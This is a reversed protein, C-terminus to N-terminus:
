GRVGRVSPTGTTRAWRSREGRRLLFDIMFDHDNEEACDSFRPVRIRREGSIYVRFKEVKYDKVVEVSYEAGWGRIKLGSSKVGM